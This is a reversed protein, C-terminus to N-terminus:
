CRGSFCLNSICDTNSTCVLGTSCRPCSPDAGGCDVDSENGDLIGNGCGPLITCVGQRCVGPACQQDATCATGPACPGCAQNGCDVALENGNRVGDNCRPPQCCAGGGCGPFSCVESDCDSDENCDDGTGCANPCDGGCDVDGENQNEVGDTCSEPLCIADPGCALDDCDANAECDRGVECGPCNGGCDVDTEDQNRVEDNCSAPQCLEARCVQSTCDADIGCLAGDACLVPCDGGCDVGGENGNRLGDDCTPDPPRQQEPAEMEGLEDIPTDEDVLVEDDV